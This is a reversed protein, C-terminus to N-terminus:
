RCIENRIPLNKQKKWPRTQRRDAAGHKDILNQNDMRRNDTKRWEGFESNQFNRRQRHAPKKNGRWTARGDDSVRWDIMIQVLRWDPEIGDHIMYWIEEKSPDTGTETNKTEADIRCGNENRCKQDRDPVSGLKKPIQKLDTDCEIYRRKGFNNFEFYIAGSRRRRDNGNRMTESWTTGTRKRCRVPVYTKSRLSFFQLFEHDIKLIEYM